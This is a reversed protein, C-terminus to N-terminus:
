IKGEVDSFFVEVFDDNDSIVKVLPAEPVVQFTRSIAKGQVGDQANAFIEVKYTNGGVLNEILISESALQSNEFTIKSTTLSYIRVNYSLAGHVSSWEIRATGKKINMIEVKSPAAPKLFCTITGPESEAKSDSIAIVKVEYQVGSIGNPPSIKFSHSGEKERKQSKIIKEQLLPSLNGDYDFSRLEIRYQAAGKVDLWSFAINEHDTYQLQMSPRPQEPGTEIILIDSFDSIDIFNNQEVLSKITVYYKTGSRLKPLRIIHRSKETILEARKALDVIDPMVDGAFIPLDKPTEKQGQSNYWYYHIEYGKAQPFPNFIEVLASDSKASIRRLVPASPLTGVTVEKSWVSWISEVQARLKVSCLDAPLLDVIKSSTETGPLIGSRIEGDLKQCRARYEYLSSQLASGMEAGHSKAYDKWEIELSNVKRGKLSVSLGKPMPPPEILSHIARYEQPVKQTFKADYFVYYLPPETNEDQVVSVVGVESISEENFTELLKEFVFANLEDLIDEYLIKGGEDLKIEGEYAAQGILRERATLVEIKEGWSTNEFSNKNNKVSRARVTYDTNPYLDEIVFPNKSTTYTLIKSLKNKPQNLELEIHTVEVAARWSISIQTPSTDINLTPPAPETRASAFAWDPYSLLGTDHHRSRLRIMYDSSSDLQDILITHVDLDTDLTIPAFTEITNLEDWDTAIQYFIQDGKEFESIELTIFDPSSSIVQIKPATPRSFLEIEAWSSDPVNEFESIAKIQVKYKTNPELGRWEAVNKMSAPINKPKRNEDLDIRAEYRFARPVESWKVMISENTFKLSNEDTFFHPAELATTISVQIPDSKLTSDEKYVVGQIQFKYTTGAHLDSFEFSTSSGDVIFNEASKKAAQITAIPPESEIIFGDFDDQEPWMLLASDSEKHKVLSITMTTIEPATKSFITEVDTTTLDDIKAFIEFMFNQGSELDRRQLITQDKNLESFDGDGDFRYLFSRANEVKQWKYIIESQTAEAHLGQLKPATTFLNGEGRESEIGEQDYAVISVVYSQLPVFADVTFNTSGPDIELEENGYYLVLKTVHYEPQEWSLDAETTKVNNVRVPIMRNFILPKTETMFSSEMLPSNNEEEEALAVLAFTYTTAYDEFSEFINKEFSQCIIIYQACEYYACKRSAM